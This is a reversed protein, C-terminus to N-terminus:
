LSGLFGFVKEIIKNSLTSIENILIIKVQYDLYDPITVVSICVLLVTICFLSMAYLTMKEPSM